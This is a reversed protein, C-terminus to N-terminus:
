CFVEALGKSLLRNFLAAFAASLSDHIDRAVEGLLERGQRFLSHTRDQVTNAKLERDLGLKESVDGMLTQVLYALSFLFLFRDRRECGTIKTFRLGYGYRRDKVDRFAEECQFRRAYLNVIHRGDADGLSTALCWCEKMGAAKVLVVTYGDVEKATLSTERLVRIRGNRPVLDGAPYLWGASEVYINPRFRIVFDFGLEEYIYRYLEVDCFGKDALVVVEVGAPLANALMRLVKREYGRQRGKLKSKKVTLWVLPTTRKTRTVLSVCITSHDDKDFETWDITVEISQRQGVVFPVFGGFLTELKLKGNSLCRDVQKIGHKPTTGFGRRAMATGVAAIGLRDSWIIGYAIMFLSLKQKAHLLRGFARDVVRELARRYLPATRKRAVRREQGGRRRGRGTKSRRNRERRKRSRRYQQCAASKSGSKKRRIKTM